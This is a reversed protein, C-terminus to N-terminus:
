HAKPQRSSFRHTSRERCREVEISRDLRFRLLAGIAAAGSYRHWIKGDLFSPLLTSEQKQYGARMM